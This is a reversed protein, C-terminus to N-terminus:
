GAPEEPAVLPAVGVAEGLEAFSARLMEEFAALDPMATGDADLGIFLRDRYGYLAISVPTHPATPAIPYGATIEAGAIYRTVPIGPVNTVILEVASSIQLAFRQYLWRPAGSLLHAVTPLMRVAPSAKRAQM